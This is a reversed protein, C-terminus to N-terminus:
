KMVSEWVAKRLTGKYDDADYQWYMMGKLGLGRAWNAKNDISQPNDYGCFFLGNKTVFPTKSVADWNDIKYITKDLSLITSYNLSQPKESYSHRGYFPIGLVMKNYEVGANRYASVARTCDWYARSDSLASHHKPAADMDYTMINVFDVYQDVAKIDIYRYGGTVAKKDMVYGAYTLLYNNGITERLQKMLLIHNQVDVAPDSAAGSWSLGPFEWDIDIGDIGWEEIFELCDQAFAKRYEDSKALASFSGGQINDYNDVVHTFSVLIKLHPHNKKLDVIQKFRGENGQLKFGQYVGNRVYLEAFAYNIHTIIRADPIQTGWYTVYALAVRGEKLTAPVYPKEEPKPEPQPEKECSLPLILVSAALIIAPLLKKIM